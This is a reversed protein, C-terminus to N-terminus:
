GRSILAWPRLYERWESSDAEEGPGKEEAGVISRVQMEEHGQVSPVNDHGLDMQIIVEYLADHDLTQDAGEAATHGPM